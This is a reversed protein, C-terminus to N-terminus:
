SIAEYAAINLECLTRADKNAIQSLYWDVTHEISEKLPWHPSMGLESRSKATELALWHAEHPGSPTNTYKVEIGKLLFRATEIVQEVTAASSSHPGFNYAGAAEPKNWLKQALKMYGHLPDLVHQWPRTSYPNRVILPRNSQWAKIMDPLLRDQSWDGGGIVNGSRVTAVAVGQSTLFAKRYSAVLIECAAKSASYPDHGGLPDTERYPFYTEINDYVKDTTVIIAVRIDTLSRLADLVHATGMTNTAFTHLPDAYGARVLSQAAMHFVIEPKAQHITAATKVPDRIDCLHSDILEDVRALKFLNPTNDPLLSLGTVQAGLRSLWISLWSGKFGTHGTILVRRGKWFQEKKM